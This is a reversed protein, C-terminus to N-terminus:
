QEFKNFSIVVRRLFIKLILLSMNVYVLELITPVRRNPSVKKILEIIASDKFVWLCTDPKKINPTQIQDFFCHKTESQRGKYFGIHLAKSSIEVSQSLSIFLSDNFMKTRFNKVVM